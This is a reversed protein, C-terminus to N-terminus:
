ARKRAKKKEPAPKKGRQNLSEQLMAVIDVVNTGPPPGRRPAPPLEKGGAAIKEEIVKMM